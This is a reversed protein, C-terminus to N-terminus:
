VHISDLSCLMANMNLISRKVGGGGPLHVLAHSINVLSLNGNVKNKGLMSDSNESIEHLIQPQKRFKM